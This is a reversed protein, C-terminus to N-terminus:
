NRVQNKSVEESLAAGTKAGSLDNGVLSINATEEGSVELFIDTGPPAFCKTLFANRCNEMAVMPMQSGAGDPARLVNSVVADEVEHLSLASRKYSAFITDPILVRLGDVTLGKINALTAYSPKQAYIYRRRDQTDSTRGGIHKRRASYDFGKDVRMTINRISLNEIKSKGMGQVLIGNDSVINIDSFTLDRIRGVRSEPERKEIDVFIPYISNM